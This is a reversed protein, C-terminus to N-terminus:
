DDAFYKDRRPYGAESRLKNECFISKEYGKIGVTSYEELRNDPNMVGFVGHLCHILEHGMTIHPIFWQGSDSLIETNSYFLTCTSGQGHGATAAKKDDEQVQTKASIGPILRGKGVQYNPNSMGQQWADYRAQDNVKGTKAGYGPASWDRTLPPQFIVNVGKPCNPARYVPKAEKIAKLLGKGTPLQALLRLNEKVLAKFFPQKLPDYSFAFGPFESSKFIPM